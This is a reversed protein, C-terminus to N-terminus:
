EARAVLRCGEAWRAPDIEAGVYSRGELKCAAAMPALGAWLDLVLADSPTWRRVMGRLWDLPKRSHEERPSAHGNGLDHATDRYAPAGRKVFVLVPETRGLWHYGVGQSHLKLWAGGTVYEWRKGAGGANLFELLKPWTAWCVLRGGPTACDYALDLLTAIETDTMAGYIGNAEPNAVGPENDYGWPPDAMVLAAGRVTLTDRIDGLRYDIGPPPRLPALSPFLTVIAQRRQPNPRERDDGFPQPHSRAAKLWAVKAVVM